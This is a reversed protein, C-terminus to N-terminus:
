PMMRWLLGLNATTFGVFVLSEPWDRRCIVVAAQVAYLGTVTLLPWQRLVFEM